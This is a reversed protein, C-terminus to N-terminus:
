FKKSKRPRYGKAILKAANEALVITSSLTLSSQPIDPIVSSGVVWLGNVGKVRVKDDVVRGVGCAGVFELGNGM